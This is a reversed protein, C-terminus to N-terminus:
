NKLRAIIIKAERAYQSAENDAIQELIPLAESNKNQALLCLAAYWKAAAKMDFPTTPWDNNQLIELAAATNGVAMKSMAQYFKAFYEGSQLFLQEFFVDAEAYSGNEYAWFAKQVLTESGAIANRTVPAIVNPYPRFHAVYLNNENRNGLVWWLGIAIIVSAALAIRRYWLLHVRKAKPKAFEEEVQRLMQKLNNREQEHLAVRLQLQFDAAEAFSSDSQRWEEVLKAEVENLPRHGIIDLIAEKNIM